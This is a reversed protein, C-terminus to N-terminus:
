LYLASTCSLPRCADRRALAVVALAPAPVRAVNGDHATM